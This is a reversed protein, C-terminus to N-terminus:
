PTIQKLRDSYKSNSSDKECYVKDLFDYYQEETKIDRTFSCQWFTYDILSERWNDYKAFNDNTEQAITPRTLSPRMGVINNYNKCLPSKFNGSELLVQQLVINPFKLHLKDIYDKVNKTNCEESSTKIIVPVKELINNVKTGLVFGCCILAGILISGIFGIKIPRYKFKVFELRTPDYKYLKM